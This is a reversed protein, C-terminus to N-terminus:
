FDFDFTKWKLECYIIRSFLTGRTDRTGSLRLTLTGKLHRTHLDRLARTDLQGELARTGWTSLHRSHGLTWTGKSHGLTKLVRRTGKLHKRVRQTVMLHGKLTWTDNSPEEVFFIHLIVPFPCKLLKISNILSKESYM